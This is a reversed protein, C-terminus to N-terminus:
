LRRSRPGHRRRRRARPVRRAPGPEAGQDPLPVASARVIDEAVAQLVPLNYCLSKGSATPTVIAVDEGARLADLAERQHRYLAEIGRSRLAAVLRPDLWDPIPVHDAAQAPLVRHVSLARVVDPEALFGELATLTPLPQNVRM